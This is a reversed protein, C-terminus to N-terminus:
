SSKQRRRYEAAIEEYRMFEVEEGLSLVWRLFREIMGIIHAMGSTDPHLVLSMVKMEGDEEAVEGRLWELRDMWMREVVRVDVYGASNVTHPYFQLPTADEEYWNLPIEVLQSKPLSDFHPSPHMWDAAKKNPSFDIPTIPAPNLPVFYPSSDHHTLSSDWLFEHEQLLAVTRESIQYLPARYGRPREGTAKQVLEISRLLVDREQEATMQSASEHAYGHLAIEAGSKIIAKAQEPFTELSHGPICWTMRDAIGLKRLVKLLRPVGVLGSFYGQSYDATNNDPHAGTGLWGSVADFDISLAFKVKEKVRGRGVQKPLLPLGKGVGVAEGGVGEKSGGGLVEEERWVIRGEMGGDVSLCEGSVHGSVRESALVVVMRAVDRPEAIKGLAVTGQAEVYLERPDDLRDGILATRVWGPAVANIRGRANLRVMENKVTRVLGYQLGAKGSAYEAHGAQGFKGCESGTVVVSLGEIEAGTRSQYEKAARLFHKITLFTGRVNVRYVHEWTELDLDWIPPHATENTIGANACLIHIPGNHALASSIAASISPEDSIDGTLPYVLNHDEPAPRKLDHATVRCGAALLETVIASGIGGRAGTVFAHKGELGLFSM